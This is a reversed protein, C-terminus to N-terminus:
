KILDQLAKILPKIENDSIRRTSSDCDKNSNFDISDETVKLYLTDTVKIVDTIRQRIRELKNM